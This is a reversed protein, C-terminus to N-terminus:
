SSFPRVFQSSPNDARASSATVSSALMAYVNLAIVVIMLASLAWQIASATSASLDEMM